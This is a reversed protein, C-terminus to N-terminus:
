SFLVLAGYSELSWRNGKGGGGLDTWTDELEVSVPEEGFNMVFLYRGDEGSRVQLSVHEPVSRALGSSGELSWDKMRSGYFEKLGEVNLRGALHCAIGEGYNNITLSPLNKYPYGDFRSYCLASRLHVKEMYDVTDPKGSLGSDYTEFPHLGELDEVRIGLLEALPGPAGGEFCLDSEDAYGTLFTTVLIGGARVFNKLNEATERPVMYLMPAVILKYPLSEESGSIIDMPVGRDWLCFYHKRVEEVYGKRSDNIPGRSDEFAWRNEWNYLIAAEGNYGASAVKKISKLLGGLRAAELFVSTDDRRSQDVVAGHFKEFSGRGARWQFYQVSNAGHAVAQLSSLINMGPRKNKSLPKWNVKSPTSEMLLFPKGHLSRYFDHQFAVESARRYDDVPVNEVPPSDYAKYGPSHWSPYSDWSAIDQVGRFKWYDLGPDGEPTEVSAMMNTTVPLTSGGERLSLVEHKMFEATMYTTFRKWDLNLGHVTNEGYPVPSHIESWDSLTHSWFSNWWAKNLADISGYRDKLWFRFNEQCLECHCSGSYENSVHWLIVAPHNGYREALKRNIIATKERYVPSSYCHNHRDGFLNRQGSSNVRLIEPYKGAMWVPRAGTPTALFVRIGARHLNDIVSDMWEFRFVGEEPELASWAFIGLSVVSIHAKKMLRIDEELIDPRDLWQDPNYDGGYLIEDTM